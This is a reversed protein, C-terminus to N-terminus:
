LFIKKDPKDDEVHVQNNDLINELTEILADLYTTQLNKQLEKVAEELLSYEKQIKKM